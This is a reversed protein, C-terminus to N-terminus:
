RKAMAQAKAIAESVAKSNALIAAVMKASVNLPRFNGSLRLMANGKYEGPECTFTKGTLVEELEVDSIKGAKYAALAETRNM